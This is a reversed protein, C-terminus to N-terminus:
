KQNAKHQTQMAACGDVHVRVGPGPKRRRCSGVRKVGSTNAAAAARASSSSASSVGGAGRTGALMASSSGGSGRTDEGRRPDLEGRAAGARLLLQLSGCSPACQTSETSHWHAM